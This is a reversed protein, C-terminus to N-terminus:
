RQVEDLARQLALRAAHLRWKVTGAPVGLVAAIEGVPRDEVHHLLLIARQDASLRALGRRVLDVNAVHEDAPPDKSAAAALGPSGGLDIERVRVVRHHRLQMRCANVVIRDLWVDFRDPDRLGAVQRWAALYADQVADRANAESRLIGLALRYARDITARALADFAAADGRGAAEVLAASADAPRARQLSADLVASEWGAIEGDPLM